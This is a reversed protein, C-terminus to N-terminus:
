LVIVRLAGPPLPGLVPGSDERFIELESVFGDLVHLLLHVTVGDLDEIEAEVPIRREVAAPPADVVSLELSGDDDIRRGKAAAIQAVVADRGPFDAALLVALIRQM